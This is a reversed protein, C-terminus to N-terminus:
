RPRNEIIQGQASMRVVMAAIPDGPALRPIIFILTAGLWVTLLWMLLRRVIYGRTMGGM